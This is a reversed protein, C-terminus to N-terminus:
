VMHLLQREGLMSRQVSVQILMVAIHDAEYECELFALIGLDPFRASCYPANAQLSIINGRRVEFNTKLFEEFTWPKNSVHLNM